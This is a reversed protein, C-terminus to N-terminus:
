TESMKACSKYKNESGLCQIPLRWVRVLSYITSGQIICTRKNFPSMIFIIKVLIDHLSEFTGM